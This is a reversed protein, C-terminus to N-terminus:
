NNVNPKDERLSEEGLVLTAWLAEPTLKIQTSTGNNVYNIYYHGGHEGMSVSRQGDLEIKNGSIKIKSMRGRVFGIIVSRTAIM